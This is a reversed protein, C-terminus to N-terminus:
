LGKSYNEFMRKKVYMNRKPETLKKYFDLSDDVLGQLLKDFVKNFIFRKNSETNDGLHVKRLEEDENLRTQIKQLNVRDDENLDSGFNENLVKIIHSLFEKPDETLPGGVETSIPELEGDEEVLSIPPSYKKEIRFYELDVYSFVDTLNDTTRKPLKKNLYRLFIYLKELRIDKFTIIQSIYGYLRIFSQVHHRFGEREDEVLKRWDEVVYDLIPQLEENAFRDDYFMEVFENVSEDRFLHYKKIEQEITYLKNPDTEEVLLTGQYYPQFSEQITEPKNVFDLVMTDTKGTTM